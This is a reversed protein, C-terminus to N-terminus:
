IGFSTGVALASKIIPDKPGVKRIDKVADKLDVISIGRGRLGVMKGFNGRAVLDCGVTGLRTALIRDFASPGGGRQLHGLVSVRAELGALREIDMAIKDGIGGLRVPDSPDKVMRKVVIRGGKPRAGEAVVVISFRRGRKNRETVRKCVKKIDYPIEPIIIIDGGGAMGGYIALWGTYRGMVEIVMVRHHSQATTHLKDIAESITKVASDFGITMDTAMLDNDITKPIGVLRLGKKYLRYAARLTGDGGICVLGDLQMARVNRLVANSVDKPRSSTTRYRFPNAKNSTGLFTGGETLIGSVDEYSLPRYRNEILGIYGDRIGLVEMKYNLIATKTVSRIAANLGPCEGGGTLIGIRKKGGRM